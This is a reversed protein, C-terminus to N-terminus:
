QKTLSATGSDQTLCTADFSWTGNMTSITAVFSVPYYCAQAAKPTLVMDVTTGDIVGSLTGSNAGFQTELANQNIDPFTQTWTGSLTTGSQSIVLQLVTQGANLGTMSGYWTGALNVGSPATSSGCAAVLLAMVAALTIRFVAALM